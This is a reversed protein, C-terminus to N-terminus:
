AEAKARITPDVPFTIDNAEDIPAPESRQESFGDGQKLAVLELDHVAEVIKEFERELRDDNRVDLNSSLLINFARDFNQKAAELHGAQYNAQGAQYDKEVQAILDAVLDPPTEPQPPIPPAPKAETPVHPTQSAAALPPASAQQAPLLATQRSATQCALSGLLWAIGGAMRLHRQGIRM